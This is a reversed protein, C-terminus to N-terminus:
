NFMQALLRIAGALLALEGLIILINLVLDALNTEPFEASEVTSSVPTESSDLVLVIESGTQGVPASSPVTRAAAAARRRVKPKREPFPDHGGLLKKRQCWVCQNGWFWHRSNRQCGQLESEALAIAEQWARAEPRAQPRTHGAEFAQVFLNQLSPHLSDFPLALGKPSWRGSRDRYPFAGTAIRAELTPGDGAGHFVGDFPHTGEGTLKFLLVALAFNDHWPQRDLNKLSRKQLEPPLFDSKAVMSRYTRRRVGDIIQWSDADILTVRADASVHGNSENPDGILHGLAHAQSFAAALNHGCRVLHRYDFDPHKQHRKAPNYCTFLPQAKTLKPMVYGAFKPRPGSTFLSDLPWTVWFHGNARPPPNALMFEIKARHEATPHHFIKAALNPAGVVPFVAGEGGHGIDPAALEIIKGTATVYKM